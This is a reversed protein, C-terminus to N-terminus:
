KARVVGVCELRVVTLAGDREKKERKKEEGRGEKRKRKKRGQLRVRRVGGGRQVGVAVVKVEENKM